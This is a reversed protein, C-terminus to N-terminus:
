IKNILFYSCFSIIILHSIWEGVIAIKACLYQWKKFSVSYINDQVSSDICFRSLFIIGMINIIFFGICAWLILTVITSDTNLNTIFAFSFNTLLLIVLSLFGISIWMIIMTLRAFISEWETIEISYINDKINANFSFHTLVSLGLTSLLTVLLSISIWYSAQIM